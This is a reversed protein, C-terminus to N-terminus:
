FDKSSKFEEIALKKSHIEKDRLGAVVMELKALKEATAEQNGRARALEKATQQVRVKLEDMQKDLEVDSIQACTMEGELSAVLRVQGLIHFIKFVMRDLELKNVEEKDFPPIVASTGEGVVVKNAAKSAEKSPPEVFKWTVKKQTVLPSMTGKDKAVPTSKGKKNPSTTSAEKPCKEGIVVRKAVSTSKAALSKGRSEEVRQALKKLSLRKSMALYEMSDDRSCEYQSHHSEGKDAVVIAACKYVQERCQRWWRTEQFGKPIESRRPRNLHAVQQLTQRPAGHDRSRLFEKRRLYAQLFSEIMGQSSSSGERGGM